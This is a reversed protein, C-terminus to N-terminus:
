ISRVTDSGPSYDPSALTKLLKTDDDSTPAYDLSSPAYMPFPLAELLETEAEPAVDPLIVRVAAVVAKSDLLIVYSASSGV